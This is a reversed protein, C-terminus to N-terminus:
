PKELREESILTALKSVTGELATLRTLVEYPLAQMKEAVENARPTAPSYVVPSGGSSRTEREILKEKVWKKLLTGVPIMEHGAADLVAAITEEDARFQLVGREIIKERAEAKGKAKLREMKEKQSKTMKMV